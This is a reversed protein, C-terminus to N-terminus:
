SRLSATLSHWRTCGPSAGYPPASRRLNSNSCEARHAVAESEDPASVGEGHIPAGAAAQPVTCRRPCAHPAVPHRVTPANHRTKHSSCPVEDGGEFACLGRPASAARSASRGGPAPAPATGAVRRRSQGDRWSALTRDIMASFHGFKSRSGAVQRRSSM